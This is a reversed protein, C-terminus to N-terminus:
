DGANAGGAEGIGRLPGLFPKLDGLNFDADREIVNPFNQLATPDDLLFARSRLPPRQLIQEALLVNPAQQILWELPATRRYLLVGDCERLRQQHQLEITAGNSPRAEPLFVRFGEASVIQDSLTRAFAADENSTPDCVIYVSPTGDPKPATATSPPKLTGLVEGIMSRVPQHELLTFPIAIGEANRVREILKKQLPDSTAAAERSVWFLIRKGYEIALDLQREAFKDYVAGLLHVCLESPEIEDRIAKDSYLEDLPAEPRVVYGQARLENRLDAEEDKLELSPTAVFVAEGMRRMSKLVAGVHYAAEELRARFAETGPVLDREVGDPTRVFFELHQAESFFELHGDNDWPWKIIKLFRYASGSKLPVKMDDLSAFRHLFAKRERSCWESQQYGPSLIAVFVASGEIAEEIEEAWDQGFRINKADQWLNADAGLKGRLEQVLGRQFAAIWTQDDKHSYSIFIDHRCNAVYPM